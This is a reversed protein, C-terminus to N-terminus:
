RAQERVQGAQEVPRLRMAALFGSAVVAVTVGFLVHYSTAELLWGGALPAFTMVSLLTNGLGIYASRRGKPPIELAYNTFGPMWAANVLGVFLYVLPYIPALSGGAIHLALAALPAAAGAISGLRIAFRPGFREAVFSFVAAGIMTGATQAIVFQGVVADPLGMQKTAHGVYFSTALGGAAILTRCLMLQRFMPDKKLPEFLGIKRALAPDETKGEPAPERLMFLAIASPIMMTFGITFLIAFDKPFPTEDIIASILVGAGLGLLG